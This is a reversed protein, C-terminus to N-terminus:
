LVETEDIFHAFITAASLPCPIPISSGMSVAELLAPVNEPCDWMSSDM